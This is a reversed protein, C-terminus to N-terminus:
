IRMAASIATSRSIMSTSPLGVHSSLSPMVVSLADQSVRALRTSTVDGEFVQQVILRLMEPPLDSFGGMPGGGGGFPLKQASGGGGGGGPPVSNSCVKILMDAKQPTFVSAVRISLMNFSAAPLGARSFLVRLYIEGM